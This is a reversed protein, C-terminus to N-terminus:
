ESTRLRIERDTVEEIADAPLAYVDEDEDSWGLLLRYEDLLSTHPDVYATGDEVRVVIGVKEDDADFVPKGKEAETVARSM